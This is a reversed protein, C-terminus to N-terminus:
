NSAARRGSAGDMGRPHAHRWVWRQFRGGLMRVVMDSRATRLVLVLLSLGSLVPMASQQENAQRGALFVRHLDAAWLMGGHEAWWPLVDHLDPM